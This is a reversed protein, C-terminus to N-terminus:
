TACTTECTAFKEEHFLSSHQLKVVELGWSTWNPLLYRAFIELCRPEPPLYGQMMESIPPKHSHIASPVSLFVKGDEPRPLLSGEEPRVGFILKEYPQKGPPKSFSCVTDGSKTVKLWIWQAVQEAGWAPFLEDRLEELHNNSNTCWVAIIGGPALLKNLPLEGLCQNYMMKYGEQLCKAKKRRIYKNWWPPDLLILDFLGLAEVNNIIEQVDRCYFKSHPPFIFSQLGLPKLLAEDTNNEGSFPAPIWGISDKYLKESLMRADKNNNRVDSASPIFTFHDSRRAGELLQQYIHKIRDVEYVPPKESSIEDFKRKPANSSQSVTDGEAKKKAEADRMYPTNVHFIHQHPKFKILIGEKRVHDYLRTLYNEHCVVFGDPSQFIVSM